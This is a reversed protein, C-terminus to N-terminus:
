RYKINRIFDFIIPMVFIFVLMVLVIIIFTKTEKTVPITNKKHGEMNMKVKPDNVYDPRELKNYAGDVNLDNLSTENYNNPTNIFQNSNANGLVKDKLAENSQDNVVNTNGVPITNVPTNTGGNLNPIQSNQPQNFFNGGNVPANPVQPTGMMNNLMQQSNQNYDQNNNM